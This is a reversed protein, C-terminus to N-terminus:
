QPSPIVQPSVVTQTSSDYNDSLYFRLFRNFGSERLGAAYSNWLAKDSTSIVGNKWKSVGDAMVTRIATQAASKPNHPVVRLRFYHVGRWYSATLTKGFTGRTDPSFFPAETKAM